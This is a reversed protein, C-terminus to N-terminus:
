GLNRLADEIARHFTPYAYMMHRLTALPVRGHVAVVLAGLVEGGVPGASTAGVLVDREADAVLKIFGENGVKHIWGRASSALQAMGVQVNLGQDRAQQETLGVAGIEPDTFTVRPLARYDARPGSGASPGSPAPEGSTTPPGSSAPAGSATPQGAQALVDRIVIGAQYMAVHTFAGQGTVDGVAWVGAGAGAGARMLDDVTLFRDNPDLGISELGLGDLQARRGTAVLLREGDIRAGDSLHVAFRGTEHDVRDVRVGTHIEVGDARLAEAALESSEPEETALLRDAVELVRVPVGFRAFVQALELGIAGGGLVILSEPLEETEIAERNTWYPTKTLGDIPPIAPITGTGIVVGRSARYHRDDVRVEGPGTIIGRGRVFRAGKGTLREVAGRDNWSDTAEERIRKAVPAWDATVRAQGALEDVRRAEALANAARIMMKSPVCGWYPCEGGVLNQEIAVVSLGAEALKGAVEEGGVGLGLVIVDVQEPEM